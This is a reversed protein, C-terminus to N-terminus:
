FIAFLKHFQSFCFLYSLVQSLVSLLSFVPHNTFSPGILRETTKTNALDNHHALSVHSGHKFQARCLKEATSSETERVCSFQKVYFILLLGGTRFKPRLRRRLAAKLKQYVLQPRSLEIPAPQGYGDIVMCSDM